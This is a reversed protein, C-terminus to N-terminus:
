HRISIPCGGGGKGGTIKTLNVIQSWFHCLNMTMEPNGGEWGKRRYDRKLSKPDAVIICYVLTEYVHYVFNTRLIHRIRESM